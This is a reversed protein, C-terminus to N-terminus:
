KKELLWQSAMKIIDRFQEQSIEATREALVVAHQEDRLKAQTSKDAVFHSDEQEFMVEGERDDSAVSCSM